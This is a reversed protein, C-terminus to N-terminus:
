KIVNFSNHRRRIITSLHFFKMNKNGEKLWLERSKQKWLIESRMLWELLELQLAEEIRGNEKSPSKQQVENINRMLRNIRDQCNGFVEKNWKRLAERTAVQKKYLRSFATSSSVSEWAKEVVSNCGNDKIWAAEFQFPQHAFSDELNTNLLIPAHDSNIAGLHSVTAKLFALRWLITAIGRDLRRKIAFSRWRGRAWTFSKGSYGLDIAICVWPLQCLELLAMLNGWAKQKKALYPPNYFGGASGKAEVVCMDSFKISNMVNVMRSASAKTECLFIVDPSNENIQAKLARVTTANYIGCCNWGLVKM